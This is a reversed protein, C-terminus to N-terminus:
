SATNAKPLTEQAFKGMHMSLAEFGHTLGMYLTLEECLEPLAGLMHTACEPRLNSNSFAAQDEM